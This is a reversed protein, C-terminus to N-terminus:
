IKFIKKSKDWEEKFIIKSNLVIEKLDNEINKQDFNLIQDSSLKMDIRDIINEINRHAPENSNLHMKIKNSISNFNSLYNSYNEYQANFEEKEETKGANICNRHANHAKLTESYLKSLLEKLEEIWRIRSSSIINSKMQYLTILGAILALLITLANKFFDNWDFEKEIEPLKKEFIKECSCNMSSASKKKHNEGNNSNDISIYIDHQKPEEKKTSIKRQIAKSKQKINSKISDCCDKNQAQINFAILLCLSFKILM